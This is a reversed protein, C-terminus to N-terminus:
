LNQLQKGMIQNPQLSNKHEVKGALGEDAPKLKVEDRPTLRAAM